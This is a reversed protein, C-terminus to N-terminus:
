THAAARGASRDADGATRGCVAWARATLEIAGDARSRLQGRLRERIADRTAAPLGALYSPAPGSGGLFPSWFDDFDAFATTVDIARTEVDALGCHAALAQLADPRCLPFRRAEDFEAGGSHVAAAADWFARIMQMGDAYDWVYLAVVGGPRTVRAMENLMAAPEAVFNLVLGSVAADFSADPWPLRAADGVDIRVRFDALRQRAQEVFGPAADVGVVLLPSCRALITSALAGTGCGVDAWTAHLPVDLWEIFREAVPRSWRGVYREYAQGSDWGDVTQAPGM